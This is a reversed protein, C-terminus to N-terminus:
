EGEWYLARREASERVDRLKREMRKSLHIPRNFDLRSRPFSPAGQRRVLKDMSSLSCRHETVDPSIVAGCDPCKWGERM